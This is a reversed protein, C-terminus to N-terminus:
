PVIIAHFPSSLYGKNFLGYPVFTSRITRPTSTSIAMISISIGRFSIRITRRLLGSFGNVEVSACLQAAQRAGGVERIKEIILETNRKGSGIVSETGAVDHKYAGWQVKYEAEVPYAELYRWGNSFIGKDYFVIGKAPGIDGINYTKESQNVQAFLGEGIVISFICFLFKRM